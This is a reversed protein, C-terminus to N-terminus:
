VQTTVWWTNGAPDGFGGRRDPDGARTSPEQEAVAGAALARQYIVDVSM